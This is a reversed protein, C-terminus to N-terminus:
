YIKPEGAPRTKFRKYGWQYQEPIRKVCEEVGQNVYKVSVAFDKNAIEKAGAVFYMHYGTGHPLRLAFVFIVPAGTKNALRSLLTMTNAQIGFFPAFVGSEEGPDQDPLIGILEGRHLAQYLTRVGQTNTPVLTCGFRSRSTRIFEDLGAMRPPRYLNTMPYLTGCYLGVMEWSGLHPAAIIAGKGNRMAEDLLEQGSTAVVKSILKEKNWFWVPGTETVTKMTEILSRRWLRRQERPSYKTFCLQINTQAVFRMKNPILVFCWGIGAGILHVLPLPLLSFFQFLKKVIDARSM